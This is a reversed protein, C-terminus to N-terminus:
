PGALGVGDSARCVWVKAAEGDPSRYRAEIASRVEAVIGLPMLAVVCGGFGGGTMRAGGRGALAQQTLDVLQDVAPVTIQFDDRMSDHSAAMLQALRTLDGEALADAADLTRQNETVIHRARRLVLPDLGASRSSLMADNVDRLAAVGFHRAAAECQQRRENYASDVLGRAVRSHVIMVALDEPLPVPRAELSRCDILLAHGAQGRASILQDMIGCQCGVFENEAQRALLALETRSLGLEQLENLAQLVAVELSASSSLGAGQPVDGAIVLEAGKLEIGRQRLMQAVGRVYNAWAATPHAPLPADLRVEDLADGYDAAVVRLLGDSRPRAAVLTQFDIACPLVFGDNYDTHEGILNVRGPARVIFEPAGGFASEFSALVRQHLPNMAM